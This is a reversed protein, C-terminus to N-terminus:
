EVANRTLGHHCEGAAYRPRFPSSRSRLVDRVDSGIVHRSAEARRTRGASEGAWNVACIWADFDNRYRWRDQALRACPHRSSDNFLRM